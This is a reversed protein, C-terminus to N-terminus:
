ARAGEPVQGGRAPEAGQCTCCPARRKYCTWDSLVVLLLCRPPQGLLWRAGWGCSLRRAPGCAGFVLWHAAAHLANTEWATGCALACSCCRVSACPLRVCRTYPQGRVEEEVWKELLIQGYYPNDHPVMHGATLSCHAAANSALLTPWCCRQCAAHALLMAPSCRPCPAWATGPWHARAGPVHSGRLTHACVPCHAPVAWRRCGWYWPETGRNLVM